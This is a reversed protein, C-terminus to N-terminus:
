ISLTIFPLLNSSLASVSTSLRQYMFKMRFCLYLPLSSFYGKRKKHKLAAAWYFRIM